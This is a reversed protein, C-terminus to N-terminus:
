RLQYFGGDQFTFVKYPKQQMYQKNKQLEFIKRGKKYSTGFATRSIVDATMNELFPWVDLECSSDEKSVSSEWEKIMETCSQHFSPLMRKLKESHFTPNIIRRHKAWKEGEYNALGRTLLRPIPGIWDFSNKGYAKVTQDVFPTVQPAIDHSTSLSMPKSKAQKLLISNEKMDGYLFRYSNGKFGQERLCIELKKPKFWVWDLVSWAWRVIISVLVLTLAVWSAVTLSM